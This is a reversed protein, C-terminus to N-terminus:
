CGVAFDGQIGFSQMLRQFDSKPKRGPAPSTSIAVFLKGQLKGEVLGHVTRTMGYTPGCESM